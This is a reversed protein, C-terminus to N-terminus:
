IRKLKVESGKPWSTEGGAMATVICTYGSLVQGLYTLSHRSEAEGDGARLLCTCVQFHSLSIGIYWSKVLYLISVPQNYM